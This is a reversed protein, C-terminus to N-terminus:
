ASAEIRTSLPRSGTLCRGPMYVRVSLGSCMTCSTISLAASSASAPKPLRMADRQVGVARDADVVVAAADREAQVGFFLHRHDLDDEGPQVGAALEVLAGATGVAEAAAQVAHADADGVRQRLPQSTVTHRSPWTAVSHEGAAVHDLRQDHALRRRTIALCPVLTRAQGSGLYKSLASSGRWSSICRSRLLATSIGPTVTDSVCRSSPSV